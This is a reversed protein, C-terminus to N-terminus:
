IENGKEQKEIRPFSVSTCLAQRKLAETLQELSKVTLIIESRRSEHAASGSIAIRSIETILEENDIRKKRRIVEQDLKNKLQKFKM